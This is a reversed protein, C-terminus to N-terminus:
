DWTKKNVAYGLVMGIFFYVGWMTIADISYLILIGGIILSLVVATKINRSVEAM